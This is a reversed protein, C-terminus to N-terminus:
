MLRVVALASRRVMGSANRSRASSTISHLTALEDRQEATRRRPRERRARLLSFLPRGRWFFLIRYASAAHNRAIETLITPKGPRPSMELTIPHVRCRPAALPFFLQGEQ